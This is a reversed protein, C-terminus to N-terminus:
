KREFCKLLIKKHNPHQSYVRWILLDLEACTRNKSKVIDLFIREIENYRKESGPTSKPIKDYGLDNLFALIHVDLGACEADKRSHLIFCRATKPGIGWISTLDSATCSKLDFDSNTVDHIAKAKNSYCGIGNLKLREGLENIPIDKVLSFPEVCM